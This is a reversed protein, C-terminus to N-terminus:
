VHCTSSRHILLAGLLEHESSESSRSLLSQMRALADNLGSVEAEIRQMINRPVTMLVIFFHFLSGVLMKNRSLVVKLVDAYRSLAQAYGDVEAERLPDTANQLYMCIASMDGDLANLFSAAGSGITIKKLQGLVEDDNEISELRDEVWDLSRGVLRLLEIAFSDLRKSTNKYEQLARKTTKIVHEVTCADRNAIVEMAIPERYAPVFTLSHWAESPLSVVAESRIRLFPFIDIDFIRVNAM